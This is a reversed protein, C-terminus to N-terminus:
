WPNTAWISVEPIFGRDEMTLCSIVTHAIDEAVLKKPNPHSITRRGFGTQVESPNVLIVRINYRRLEARWCETMGRLAFKSAVYASANEYGRLASSSGINIITGYNQEKFVRVAERAMFAAGLVNTAWVEEFRKADFSDIPSSYGIGANNILVNLGDLTGAAENISRRCDDEGKVDAKIAVAEIQKAAEDLEKQDRGTIAVAAGNGKLMGAIALGIGRSGGTIIAKCDKLNM